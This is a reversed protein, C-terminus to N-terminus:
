EDVMIMGKEMCKHIRINDGDNNFIISTFLFLFVSKGSEVKKIVM